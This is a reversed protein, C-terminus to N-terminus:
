GIAGAFSCGVGFMTFDSHSDGEDGARESRSHSVMMFQVSQHYSEWANKLEIFSQHADEKSLGGKKAAFKDPHLSHARELYLQRLENYSHRKREKDLSCRSLGRRLGPDDRGGAGRGDAGDERFLVRVLAERSRKSSISNSIRSSM